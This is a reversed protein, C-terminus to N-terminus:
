ARRSVPRDVAAVAQDMPCDPTCARWDCLRCAEDGQDRSRSTSALARAALTMFTDRDAPALGALQADIAQSRALTGLAVAEEGQATVTLAVERQGASRERAILGLQQLRDLLRVAGSQTLGLRAHLWSVTCGERNRVLVLAALERASLSVTEHIAADAADSVQLALASVANQNHM